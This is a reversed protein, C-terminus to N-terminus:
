EEEDRYTPRRVGQQEPPLFSSLKEEILSPTDGAQIALIGEMILERRQVEDAGRVKLKGAVPLFALNALLVGYFTALLASAMTLGLGAGGNMQRLMQILGILTGVMGFGPAFQAMTEFLGAAQKNRGELAALDSELIARIEDHDTGDVLLALGKRLFPDEAYEADQELALVGERRAREAFGVLTAIMDAHSNGASRFVTRVAKLAARLRPLPYHILTAAATGGVTIFLANLDIFDMPSGGRLMAMAVVALGVAAGILTALDV